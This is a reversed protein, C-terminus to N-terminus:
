ILVNMWYFKCGYYLAYVVSKIKINYLKSIKKVYYM